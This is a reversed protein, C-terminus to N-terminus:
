VRPSELRQRALVEASASVQEVVYNPLGRFLLYRGDALRAKVLQRTEADRLGLPSADDRALTFDVKTEAGDDLKTLARVQTAEDTLLVQSGHELRRSDSSGWLPDRGGLCTM